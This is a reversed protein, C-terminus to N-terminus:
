SNIKDLELLLEKCTEETIRIERDFQKHVEAYSKDYLDYDDQGLNKRADEPLSLITELELSKDTILYGREPFSHNIRVFMRKYKKAGLFSTQETVTEWNITKIAEVFNKTNSYLDNIEIYGGHAVWVWINFSKELKKNYVKYNNAYLKLLKYGMEKLKPFKGTFKLDMIM